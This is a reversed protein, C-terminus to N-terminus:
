KFFRKEHNKMRAELNEHITSQVHPAARPANIMQPVSLTKMMELPYRDKTKRKFAQISGNAKAVFVNPPLNKPKGKVVEINVRYPKNGKKRNKPKIKFRGVTLLRGSFKLGIEENGKEGMEKAGKFDQKVRKKSINYKESVSQSVWGAGRSKFDKTTADIVKKSNEKYGKLTKVAKEFDAEVSIKKGM